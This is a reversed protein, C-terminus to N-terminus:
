RFTISHPGPTYPASAADSYQWIARQRPDQELWFRLRPAVRGGEQIAEDQFWGAITIEAASFNEVESKLVDGNSGCVPINLREMAARLSDGMNVTETDHRQIYDNVYAVIFRAKPGAPVVCKKFENPKAPNALEGARIVLSVRGCDTQWGEKNKVSHRTPLFCQM